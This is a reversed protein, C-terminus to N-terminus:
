GTKDYIFTSTGVGTNVADVPMAVIDPSNRYVVSMYYVFIALGIAPFVYQTMICMFGLLGVTKVLQYTAYFPCCVISKLWVYLCCCRTKRRKKIIIDDNASPIEEFEGEWWCWSATRSLWECCSEDEIIIEEDSDTSAATDEDEKGDTSVSESDSEPDRTQHRKKKSAKKKHTSRRKPKIKKANGGKKGARPGRAAEVDDDDDDVDQGTAAKSSFPLMTLPYGSKM